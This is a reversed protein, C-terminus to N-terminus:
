DNSYVVGMGFPRYVQGEPLMYRRGSNKRAKKKAMFINNFNGSQVITNLEDYKSSLVGPCASCIDQGRLRVIDTLEKTLSPDNLVESKSHLLLASARELLSM